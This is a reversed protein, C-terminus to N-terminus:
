HVINLQTFIILIERLITFFFLAIICIIQESEFTSDNSLALQTIIFLFITNRKFHLIVRVAYSNGNLIHSLHQLFALCLRIVDIVM